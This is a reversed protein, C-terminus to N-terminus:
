NRHEEQTETKRLSMEELDARGQLERSTTLVQELLSSQEAQAAQTVETPSMRWSHMGESHALTKKM